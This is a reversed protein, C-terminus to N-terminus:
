STRARVKDLTDKLNRFGVLRRAEDLEVWKIQTIGEEQQPRLNDAEAAEMLYWSTKKEIKQDGQFYTHYTVGIFDTLTIGRIGTEETVERKACEAVSEGRERKGKPLDWIGNRLILLVEEGEASVRLVVGGSAEMEISNESDM